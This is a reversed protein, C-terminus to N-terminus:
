LCYTAVQPITWSLTGHLISAPWWIDVHHLIPCSICRPILLYHTQSFVKCRNHNIMVKVLVGLYLFIEFVIYKLNEHDLRRWQCLLCLSVELCQWPGSCLWGCCPPVRNEQGLDGAGWGGGWVNDGGRIPSWVWLRCGSCSFCIIYMNLCTSIFLKWWNIVMM